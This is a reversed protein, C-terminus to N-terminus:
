RRGSTIFARGSNDAGLHVERLGKSIARQRRRLSQSTSRWRIIRSLSSYAGANPLVMALGGSPGASARLMKGPPDQLGRGLYPSRDRRATGGVRGVSGDWRATGGLRGASGAQAVEM